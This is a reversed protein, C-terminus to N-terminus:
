SLNKLFQSLGKNHRKFIWYLNLVKSHMGPVNLYSMDAQVAFTMRRDTKSFDDVSFVSGDIFNGSYGSLYMNSFLESDPVAKDEDRTSAIVGGERRRDYFVGIFDGAQVLIPQSLSFRHSGVPRSPLQTYAVLFFESESVQRFVGIYAEGSKSNYYDWALVFGDCPFANNIMLNAWNNDERYPLNSPDRGVTQSCVDVSIYM